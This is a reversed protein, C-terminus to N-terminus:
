RTPSRRRVYLAVDRRRDRRGTLSRAPTIIGYHRLSRLDARDDRTTGNLQIVRTINACRFTIIPYAGGATRSAREGDECWGDGNDDDGGSGGRKTSGTENVRADIPVSTRSCERCSPYEPLLPPHDERLFSILLGIAMSQGSRGSQLKAHTRCTLAAKCPNRKSLDAQLVHSIQAARAIRITVQQLLGFVTLIEAFMRIERRTDYRGVEITAWSRRAEPRECFRSRSIM